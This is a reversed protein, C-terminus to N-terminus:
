LIPSWSGPVGPEGPGLGQCGWLTHGATGSTISYLDGTSCPDTPVNTGVVWSPISPSTSFRSNGIGSQNSGATVQEGLIYMGVTPDSSYTLTTNTLADVITNNASGSVGMITIDCVNNVVVHPTTQPPCPSSNSQGGSIHILNTINSGGSINFLLDDFAPAETGSGPGSVGVYIGDTFGNVYVDEISTAFAGILYASATSGLYIGATPNPSSCATGNQVCTCSIGHLGRPSGNMEVCTATTGSIAAKGM